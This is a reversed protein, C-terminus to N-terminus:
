LSVALMNWMIMQKKNSDSIHNFYYAVNLPPFFYISGRLRSFSNCPCQRLAHHKVAMQQWYSESTKHLVLIKIM